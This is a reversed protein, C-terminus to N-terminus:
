SQHYIISLVVKSISMQFTFKEEALLQKSPEVKGTTGKRKVWNMSKLVGRAWMYTLIVNGGFESLSNPNNAKPVGAGISIVMKRSIVPGALHIGIIVEM